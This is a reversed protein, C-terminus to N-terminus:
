RSSKEKVTELVKIADNLSKVKILSGEGLQAIEKLSKDTWKANKIGLVTISLGERATSQIKRRVSQSRGLSFAGDSALFIQNNGDAIFNSKGVQIAKKIGKVAHTGGDAQINNISEEIEKKNVGSTPPLIVEAEGSYTVISLYDTARLPGLLEIMATKLIEMKEDQRMSTSADILFIINNPKFSDDLLDPNVEEEELDDPITPTYALHEEKEEEASEIETTTEEQVEEPEKEEWTSTSDNENGFLITLVSPSNRREEPTKRQKKEKKRRPTPSIPQAREETVEKANLTQTQNTALIDTPREPDYLQLPFKAIKGIKQKQQITRSASSFDPCAQRNNKPIEKINAQITLEVPSDNSSLYLKVRSSLKGKKEPNLKLRIFEAKKPLLNKSTYKVSVRKETEIRLIYIPEDTKNQVLLDVVDENLNLVDGLDFSSQSVVVQAVLSYCICIFSFLLAAIKKMTAPSEFVM